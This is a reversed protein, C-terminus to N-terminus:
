RGSPEPSGRGLRVQRLARLGRTLPQGLAVVHAALRRSLGPRWTPPRQLLAGAFCLGAVAGVGGALWAFTPPVLLAGAGTLLRTGGLLAAGVAALLAVPGLAGLTRDPGASADRLTTMGRWVAYGGAIGVLAGTTGLRHAALADPGTVAAGSAVGLIAAAGGLLASLGGLTEGRRLHPARSLLDVLSSGLLVVGALLLAAGSRSPLAAAAAALDLTPVAPAGVAPPQVTPLAAAGLLVAPIACATVTLVPHPRIGAGALLTAAAWLLPIGGLLAATGAGAAVGGTVLAWYAALLMAALVRHRPRTPHDPNWTGRALAPVVALAVVWAPVDAMGSGGLAAGLAAAACGAAVTAVICGGARPSQAAPHNM